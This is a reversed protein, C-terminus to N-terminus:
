SGPFFKMGRRRKMSWEIVISLVGQEFGQVAVRVLMDTSLLFLASLLPIEFRLNM